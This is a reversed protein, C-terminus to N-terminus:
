LDDDRWKDTEYQEIKWKIYSSIETPRFTTADVEVRVDDTKWAYRDDQPEESESM